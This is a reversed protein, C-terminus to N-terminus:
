VHKIYEIQKKLLELAEKSIDKPTTLIAKMFDTSKIKDGKKIKLANLILQKLKMNSYSKEKDNIAILDALENFDVDDSIIGKTYTKLIAITNEKDALAIPLKVEFRSDTLVGSCIYEPNTTTAFVTCHFNKSLKEVLTKM